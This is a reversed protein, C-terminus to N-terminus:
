ARAQVGSLFCDVILPASSAFAPLTANRLGRYSLAHVIALFLTSLTSPDMSRLEGQQIGQGMIRNLHALLMEHLRVCKSRLDDQSNRELASAEKIFLRFFDQNEWHFILMANLLTTLREQIRGRLNAAEDILEVMRQVGDEIVALFLAEKSPFYLYITGKALDVTESIEEITTPHYGKEAFAKAAASLIERRRHEKLEGKQNATRV